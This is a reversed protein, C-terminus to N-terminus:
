QRPFAATPPTFGGDSAYRAVGKTIRLEDIWGLWPATGSGRDGVRLNGTVNAGGTITASAVMVGDVYLRAVNSADRDVAVHHFVSQDINTNAQTLGVASAATGDPSMLFRFSKATSSSWVYYFYFSNNPNLNTWQGCIARTTVTSADPRVWAEMTFEGPLYWDDSDAINIWDGTGDCLLSGTGFKVVATDVQANGAATMTHNSNSEDDFTTSGDVGNFGALLVVSSFNPDADEVPGVADSTAPTSGASNTATVTVTISDGVEDSTLEYTSATAGSIDVGGAKWQYAYGSIAAGGDDWTGNTTSLTQGVTPTGSIVPLGTNTPASASSGGGSQVHSLGLGLGLKMTLEGTEPFPRTVVSGDPLEFKASIPEDEITTLTIKLDGLELNNSM